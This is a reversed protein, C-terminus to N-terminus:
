NGADLRDFGLVGLELRAPFELVAIGTEDAFVELELCGLFGDRIERFEQAMEILNQDGANAHPQHDLVLEVQAFEDGEAHQGALGSSGQELDHASPLAELEGGLLELHHPIHHVAGGLLGQFLRLVDWHGGELTMNEEAVDGEAKAVFGRHDQM